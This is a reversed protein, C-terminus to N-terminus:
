KDKFREWLIPYQADKQPDKVTHILLADSPVQYCAQWPAPPTEASLVVEEQRMAFRWRYVTLCQAYIEDYVQACSNAETTGDDFGAIAPVRINALALNCMGIRNAPPPAPM